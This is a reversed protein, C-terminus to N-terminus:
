GFFPLWLFRDEGSLAIGHGSLFNPGWLDPTRRGRPRRERRPADPLALALPECGADGKSEAEKSLAARGHTAGQPDLSRTPQQVSAKTRDDRVCSPFAHFTWPDGGERSHRAFLARITSTDVQSAM